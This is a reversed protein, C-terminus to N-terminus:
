QGVASLVGVLVTAFTGGVVAVTLWLMVRGQLVIQGGHGGEAVADNASGAAVVAWGLLLPISPLFSQGSARAQLFLSLGGLGWVLGLVGRLVAAGRLGLLWHGAGPVVLSAGALLAPAVQPRPPTDDDGLSRGFPTSCVKCTVREIPNWEQCVGCAWELGEDTQRFRGEGSRLEGGPAPPAAGTAAAAEGAGDLSSPAAAADPEPEPTEIGLPTFCQTCWDADPANRAGCAACRIEDTM